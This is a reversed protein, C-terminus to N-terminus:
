KVFIFEPTHTVQKACYDWLALPATTLRQVDRSEQAVLHKGRRM